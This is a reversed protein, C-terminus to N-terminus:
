KDGAEEKTKNKQLRQKRSKGPYYISYDIPQNILEINLGHVAGQSPLVLDKTEKFSYNNEGKTCRISYDFTLSVNQVQCITNSSTIHCLFCQFLVMMGRKADEDM